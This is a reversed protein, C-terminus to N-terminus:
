IVPYEGESSSDHLSDSESDEDMNRTKNIGSVDGCFVPLLDFM